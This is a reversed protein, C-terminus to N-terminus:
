RRAGSAPRDLDRDRDLALAAAGGEERRPHRWAPLTCAVASATSESFQLSSSAEGLGPHGVRALGALQVREVGRDVAPGFM